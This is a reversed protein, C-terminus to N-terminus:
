KKDSIMNSIYNAIAEESVKWIGHIKFAKLDGSRVLAYATSKGIKLLDCIEEIEYIVM